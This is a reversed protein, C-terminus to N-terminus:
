GRPAANDISIVRWNGKLVVYGTNAFGRSYRPPLLAGDIHLRHICSVLPKELRDDLFVAIQYNGPALCNLCEWQLTLQQGAKLEFIVGDDKSSLRSILTGDSATIKLYISVATINQLARVRVDIKIPEFAIVTPPLRVSMEAWESANESVLVEDSEVTSLYREVLQASQGTGKVIGAELWISWHTLQRIAAMNHSVFLVTRGEKAVDGMKGLCKKQFAADGVALVEDVLLIEPDLHAAVAFALRVYMGSSYYKVPTDIFKELESFAVIEDFKRDIERKKMGLVAGSLYINERGTLEPHFGTGVELLSGIRGRVEAYGETPDTIRALIKLLTSKGAGNRGIIGVVEGQKVEFSVDKLAWIYEENPSRVVPNSVVSKFLRFPATLSRALVDRLALYPERRGIRYRKSLSEVKIVIDNM